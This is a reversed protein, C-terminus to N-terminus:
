PKKQMGIQYIQSRVYAQGQAVSCLSLALRSHQGTWKLTKIEFRWLVKLIAQYITRLDVQEGVRRFQHKIREKRVVLVDVGTKERQDLSQLKLLFISVILLSSRGAGVEAVVWRGITTLQVIISKEGTIITRAFALRESIFQIINRNELDFASQWCRQM